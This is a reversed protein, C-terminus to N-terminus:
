VRTRGGEGGRQLNINTVESSLKGEESTSQLDLGTLM